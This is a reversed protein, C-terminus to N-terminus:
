LVSIKVGFLVLLGVSLPSLWGPAGLHAIRLSARYPLHYKTNM